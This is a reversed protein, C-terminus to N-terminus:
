KGEGEEVKMSDPFSAKLEELKRQSDRCGQAAALTFWHIADKKAEIAAKIKREILGLFQNETLGKPLIVPQRVCRATRVFKANETYKKFYDMGLTHQAKMHGREAAQAICDLGKEQLGMGFYDMGVLYKANTDGREAARTLLSRRYNLLREKAYEEYPHGSYISPIPNHTSTKEAILKLLYPPIQMEERKKELEELNKEEEEEEEEEEEKSKDRKEAYEMVVEVVRQLYEDAFSHKCLFSERAFQSYIKFNYQEMLYLRWFAEDKRTNLPLKRERDITLDDWLSHLTSTLRNGVRGQVADDRNALFYDPTILSALRSVIIRSQSLISNESLAGIYINLAEEKQGKYTLAAGKKLVHFLHFAEESTYKGWNELFGDPTAGRLLSVDSLVTKVCRVTETNGPTLSDLTKITKDTDPYFAFSLTHQLLEIPLRSLHSSSGGGEYITERSVIQAGEKVEESTKAKKPSLSSDHSTVQQFKRKEGGKNEDSMELPEGEKGDMSWAPQGLFVMMSILALL